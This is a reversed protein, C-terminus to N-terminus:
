AAATSRGVNSAASLRNRGERKAVYLAEDAKCLWENSRAIDGDWEAVGFSATVRIGGAVPILLHELARRISEIKVCADREGIEPLLIAFEEGGIRGFWASGELQDECVGVVAKLVEDGAPHGFRDNVRKFHDIDLIALTATRDGSQALRIENEVKTIFGRRTLAGTLVDREAILRLELEDVVLAAFSSLIALQPESYSRPVIDIVCLAGVNYGDPSRLQAGAYSRIFPDGVVLPNAAFLPDLHADPVLFPVDRKIAHTCFSISRDTEKVGLGQVSKFWQRERDILSVACIPVNMIDKVLATIKEFPEAVPTDLIRYRDLAALRAPEDSLKDKHM